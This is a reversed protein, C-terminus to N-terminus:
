SMYGKGYEHKVWSALLDNDEQYEESDKLQKLNSLTLLHFLQNIAKSPM